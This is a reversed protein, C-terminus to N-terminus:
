QRNSSDGKEFMQVIQYIIISHISSLQNQLCALSTLLLWTAKRISFQTFCLKERHTDNVYWFWTMFKTYSNDLKVVDPSHTLINEKWIISFLTLDSNALDVIWINLPVTWTLINKKELNMAKMLKYQDNFFYGLIYDM